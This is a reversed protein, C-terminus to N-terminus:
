QIKGVGRKSVVIDEDPALFIGRCCVYRAYVLSTVDHM